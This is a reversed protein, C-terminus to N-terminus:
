LIMNNRQWKTIDLSLYDVWYANGFYYYMLVIGNQDIAGRLLVVEQQKDSKNNFTWTVVGESQNYWSWTVNVYPNKELQIKPTYISM